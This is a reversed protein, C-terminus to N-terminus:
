SMCAYQWVPAFLAEGTATKPTLRDEVVSRHTLNPTDDLVAPTADTTLEHSGGYPPATTDVDVAPGFAELGLLGWAAEFGLVSPSSTHAHRFGYIREAPTAGGAEIWPALRRLGGPAGVLDLPSEFVCLRAVLHDRAILAAHTGGESHGALRIAAWQLQGDALFAGWGQEPHHADLYALLKSLQNVMTDPAAVPLPAGDNGYIVALREAEFCGEDPDAQCLAPVNAPKAFSLGIAHYGSAAAQQVILKADATTALFGGLYLFLEPQPPAAPDFAVYHPAQLTVTAPDVDAPAVFSTELTPRPQPLDNAMSSARAWRTPPCLVSLLTLALLLTPASARAGLLRKGAM